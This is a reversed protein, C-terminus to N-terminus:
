EDLYELIGLINKVDGEEYRAPFLAFGLFYLGATMLLLSATLVSLASQCEFQLQPTEQHIPKNAMKFKRAKMYPIEKGNLM